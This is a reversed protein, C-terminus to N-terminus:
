EFYIGNEQSWVKCVKSTPLAGPLPKIRAPWPSVSNGSLCGPSSRWRLDGFAAWGRWGCQGWSEEGREWREGGREGEEAEELSILRYIFVWQFILKGSERLIEM